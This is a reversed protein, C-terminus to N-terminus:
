TRQERRRWRNGHQGAVFGWALNTSAVDLYRPKTVRCMCTRSPQSVERIHFNILVYLSELAERAMSPIPRQVHVDLCVCANM